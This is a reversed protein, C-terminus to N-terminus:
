STYPASVQFSSGVQLPLMRPRLPPPMLAVFPSLSSMSRWLIALAPEHFMKSTRALRALAQRGHAGDADVDELIYELLESILLVRKCTSLQLPNSVDVALSSQTTSM